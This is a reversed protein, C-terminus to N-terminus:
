RIMFAQPEPAPVDLKTGDGATVTIKTINVQDKSEVSVVGKGKSGLVDFEITEGSTDFAGANIRRYLDEAEIDTQLPDGLREIVNKDAVVAALARTYVETLTRTTMWDNVDQQMAVNPLGLNPLQANAQELAAQMRPTAFYFFGGCAGACGIVMLVVAIVIAALLTGSNRSSEKPPPLPQTPDSMIIERYCPNGRAEDAPALRPKNWLGCGGM